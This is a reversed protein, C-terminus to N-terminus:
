PLQRRGSGTLGRHAIVLPTATVHDDCHAATQEGAARTQEAPHQQPTTM